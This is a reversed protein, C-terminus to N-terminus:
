NNLAINIIKERNRYFSDYFVNRIKDEKNQIIDEYTFWKLQLKELYINEVYKVIHRMTILDQNYNYMKDLRILYMYYKKNLFSKGLVYMQSKKIKYELQTKDFIVGMTEEYCERCATRYPRNKDKLESKGGFDSWKYRFDKGLLFYVKKRAKYYFLIGAAYEENM